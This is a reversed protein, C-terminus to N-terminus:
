GDPTVAVTMCVRRFHAPHALEALLTSAFTAHARFPVQLISGSEAGRRGRSRILVKLADYKSANGFVECWRGMVPVRCFLPGRAGSAM